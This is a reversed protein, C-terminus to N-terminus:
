LTPTDSAIIWCWIRGKGPTWEGPTEACMKSQSHQMRQSTSHSPLLVSFLSPHQEGVRFPQLILLLPSDTKCCASHAASLCIRAKIAAARNKALSREVALLLRVSASDFAGHHLLQMEKGLAWYKKKIILQSRKWKRMGGFQMPVSLLCPESKVGTNDAGFRVWLFMQFLSIARKSTKLTGLNNNLEPQMSQKSYYIEVLAKMNLFSETQNATLNQRSFDTNNAVPQFYAKFTATRPWPVCCILFPDQAHKRYWIATERKMRLLIMDNYEAHLIREPLM